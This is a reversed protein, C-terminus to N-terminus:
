SCSHGSAKQRVRSLFNAYDARVLADKPALALAAKFHKEAGDADHRVEDLLVAYTHMAYAHSADVQPM